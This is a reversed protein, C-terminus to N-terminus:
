DRLDGHINRMLLISLKKKFGKENHYVSFTIDFHKYGNEVLLDCICCIDSDIPIELSQCGYARTTDVGKSRLLEVVPSLELRIDEDPVVVLKVM